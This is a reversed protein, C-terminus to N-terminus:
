EMDFAHFYCNYSNQTESMQNEYYYTYGYGYDPIHCVTPQHIHLSVETSSSGWNDPGWILFYCLGKFHQYIDIVSSASRLQYIDLPACSM